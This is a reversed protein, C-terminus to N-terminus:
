GDEITNKRITTDGPYRGFGGGVFLAMPFGAITGKEITVDHYGINVVGIGGSGAITHGNLDLTVHDAAIVLGNTCGFLDDDVRTDQTIGQGCSVQAASASPAWAFVALAILAFGCLRKM